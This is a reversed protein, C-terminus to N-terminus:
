QLVCASSKKSSEDESDVSWRPRAVPDACSIAGGGGATHAGHGNELAEGTHPPADVQVAALQARLENAVQHAATLQQVYKAHEMAAHQEVAAVYDALEAESIMGDGDTDASVFHQKFNRFEQPDVKGDCNSDAAFFARQAPTPQQVDGITAALRNVGGGTGWRQRLLAEKNLMKAYKGELQDLKTLVRHLGSPQGCQVCDVLCARPNIKEFRHEVDTYLTIAYKHEVGPRDTYPIVVYKNAAPELYGIELWQGDGRRLSTRHLVQPPQPGDLKVHDGEGKAVVFGVTPYDPETQLGAVDRMDHDVDRLELFVFCRARQTLTIQFQSNQAWVPEGGGAPSGGEVLGGASPEEGLANGQGGLSWCDLLSTKRWDEEPKVEQFGFDPVGDDERDDSLITLKFLSERGPEFMFPM